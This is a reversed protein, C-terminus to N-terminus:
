LHLTAAINSTTNHKTLPPDLLLVTTLTSVQNFLQWYVATNIVATFQLICASPCLLIACLVRCCQQVSVGVLLLKRM